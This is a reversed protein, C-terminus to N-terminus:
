GSRQSRLPCNGSLIGVQNKATDLPWGQRLQDHILEIQRVSWGQRELAVRIGQWQGEAYIELGAGRLRLPDPRSLEQPSLFRNSRLRERGRAASRPSRRRDDVPNRDM